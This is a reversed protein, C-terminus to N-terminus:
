PYVIKLCVWFTTKFGNENPNSAHAGPAASGKSRWAKQHGWPDQAWPFDSFIRPSYLFRLFSHSTPPSQFMQFWPIKHSELFSEWWIPFKMMGVSKWEMMKWLPLTLVVLWISVVSKIGLFHSKIGWFSPILDLIKGKPFSQIGRIQHQVHIIEHNIWSGTPLLFKLQSQLLMIFSLYPYLISIM